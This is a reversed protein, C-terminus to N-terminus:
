HHKRLGTYYGTAFIKQGPVRYLRRLATDIAWWEVTGSKGDDPWEDANIHDLIDRAKAEWGTGNEPDAAILKELVVKADYSDVGDWHRLDELLTKIEAPM